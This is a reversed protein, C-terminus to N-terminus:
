LINIGGAVREIDYEVYTDAGEFNEM